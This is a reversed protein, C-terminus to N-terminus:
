EEEGEESEDETEEVACGCENPWLGYHKKCYSDEILAKLLLDEEHDSM